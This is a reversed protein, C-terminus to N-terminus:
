HTARAARQGPGRKVVVALLAMDAPTVGALRGAQGMTAPQFKKLTEKAETRMGSVEDYRIWTPIRKEEAQAQRRIDARQRVVYGEYRSETMAREVMGTDAADKVNLWERVQEVTTEPRRAMEWVTKGEVFVREMRARMAGLLEMRREFAQLRADCVLGLERGLMTLREDANDARLLLRHEARSTFMRYPERPTRTVLDDMMVGIYAQERGLRVASKEMVLRAANVGAILGQGAAEEYGSTGNIQ